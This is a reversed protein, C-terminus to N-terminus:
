RVVEPGGGEESGREAGSQDDSDAPSVASKVGLRRLIRSLSVCDKNNWIQSMEYLSVDTRDPAIKEEEEEQSEQGKPNVGRRRKLREECGKLKQTNKKNSKGTM